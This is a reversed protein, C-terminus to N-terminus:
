CCSLVHKRPYSIYQPAPTPGESQTELSINEPGRRYGDPAM